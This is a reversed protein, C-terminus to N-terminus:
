VDTHVHMVEEMKPPIKGTYQVLIYFEMGKLMMYMKTQIDAIPGSLLLNITNLARQYWTHAQQKDLQYYYLDALAEEVECQVLSARASGFQCVFIGDTWWYFRGNYGWNHCLMLHQLGKGM